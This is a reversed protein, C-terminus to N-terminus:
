ILKPLYQDVKKYIFSTSLFSFRKEDESMKNVMDINKQFDEENMNMLNKGEKLENYFDEFPKRLVLEFGYESMLKDLFKFNVLYEKHVYGISKVLVDIEKGYNPKKDTFSFKNKYKKEIKWM